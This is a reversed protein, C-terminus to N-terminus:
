RLEIRSLIEKIEKVDWLYEVALEEPTATSMRKEFDRKEEKM